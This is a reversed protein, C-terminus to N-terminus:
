AYQIKCGGNRLICQSTHKAYRIDRIDCLTHQATCAAGQANCAAYPVRQMNHTRSFPHANCFRVSYWVVCLASRLACLATFVVNRLACLASRLAHLIRTRMAHSRQRIRRRTAHLPSSCLAGCHQTMRFDDHMVRRAHPTQMSRIGSLYACRASHSLISIPHRSMCNEM